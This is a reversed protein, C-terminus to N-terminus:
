ESFHCALFQFTPPFLRMSGPMGADNQTQAKRWAMEHMCLSMVATSEQELM